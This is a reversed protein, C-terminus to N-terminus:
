VASSIAQMRLGRRTFTFRLEPGPLPSVEVTTPSIMINHKHVRKSVKGRRCGEINRWLMGDSGCPSSLSYLIVYRTIKMKMEM